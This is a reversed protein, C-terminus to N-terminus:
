SLRCCPSKGSAFRQTEGEPDSSSRGLSQVDSTDRLSTLSVAHLTSRSDFTKASFSSFEILYVRRSRNEGVQSKGKVNQISYHCIDKSRQSRRPTREQSDPTRHNLSLSSSRLNQRGTAHNTKRASSTCSNSSSLPSLELKLGAALSKLFLLLRLLRPSVQCESCTNTRTKQKVICSPDPGSSDDISVRM